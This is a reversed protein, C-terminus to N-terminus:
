RIKKNFSKNIYRIFNRNIIDLLYKKYEECRYKPIKYIALVADGSYELYNCRDTKKFFTIKYRKVSSLCCEAIQFSAKMASTQMIKTPHLIALSM